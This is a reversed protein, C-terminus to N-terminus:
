EDAVGIMKREEDRLAAARAYDQAEIAVEKARRVHGIQLALNSPHGPEPLADATRANATTEAFANLDELATRLHELEVTEGTSVAVGQAHELVVKTSPDFPM